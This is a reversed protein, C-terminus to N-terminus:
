FISKKLRKEELKWKRELEELSNNIHFSDNIVNDMEKLKREFEKMKEWVKPFHLYIKKFNKVGQKPCISCGTRNFYDYLPNYLNIKKTYNLCDKESMNFYEILPYILNEDKQIRHKEDTTIGLYTYIEYDKKFQKLYKKMPVIKSERTWFCPISSFPLGRIFGERKGRTVKGFVFEEFTRNKSPTLTIIEKNYNEKLYKKVKELYEYMEDFELGTDSFIIKDIPYNNKLLLDVMAVSDKGGSITAIYMKKKEM